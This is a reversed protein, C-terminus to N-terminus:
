EALERADDSLIVQIVRDGSAEKKDMDLRAKDIEVREREIEIKDHNDKWTDRKRNKLWYIQATTNPPQFKRITKSSTVEGSANYDTIVEEYEYGCASKFLANEVELDVVEKGDKLAESIEPYRNKWDYLTSTSIGCKHSIQLDTLGDRAWAQLKTLGDETLWKEYKGKSPKKRVPPQGSKAEKM